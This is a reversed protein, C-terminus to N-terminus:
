IFDIIFSLELENKPQLKQNRIKKINAFSEITKMKLTMVSTLNEKPRKVKSRKRIKLKKKRRKKKM